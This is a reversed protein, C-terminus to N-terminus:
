RPKQEAKAFQRLFFRLAPPVVADHGEQGEGTDVVFARVIGDPDSACRYPQDRLPVDPLPATCDEKPELGLPGYVKGFNFKPWYELPPRPRFGATEVSHIILTPVREKRLARVEHGFGAGVCTDFFGVAAPHAEHARNLGGGGCGAAGSHGVLLTRQVQIDEAALLRGVETMFAAVDFAPWNKGEFRFVPIVLIVPEIEHADVLGLTVKEVTGGFAYDRPAQGRGPQGHFAVLAPYRGPSKV